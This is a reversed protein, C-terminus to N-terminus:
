AQVSETTDGAQSSPRIASVTLQGAGTFALGLAVIALTLPYEMGNNQASFAGGHVVFAAVLMTFVLSASVTRTLLGLILAIGGFFEASGAM